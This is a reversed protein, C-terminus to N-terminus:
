KQFDRFQHSYHRKDDFGVYRIGFCSSLDGDRIDTGVFSFFDLSPLSKLFSLSDIPACKTIILRNLNELKRLFDYSAIRKCEEIEISRLLRMIGVLCDIRELKSAKFLVLKELNSFRQIGALSAIKTVFLSLQSLSSLTPLADLNSHNYNTLTLDRLQECAELSVLRPSYECALVSLAPFNSLDVTTKRNDAFGLSTVNHLENLVTTDFHNEPISLGEIFDGLDRLFEIDSTKYGLYSNIGIHRYDHKRIYKICEELRDSEMMFRESSDTGRFIKFGEPTTIIM